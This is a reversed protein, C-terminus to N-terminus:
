KRRRRFGGCGGNYRRRGGGGADEPLDEDESEFADMGKIEDSYNRIVIRSYPVAINERDFLLKIQRLLARHAKRRFRPICYINIKLLM